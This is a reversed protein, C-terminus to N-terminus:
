KGPAPPAAAAAKAQDLLGLRVWDEAKPAKTLRGVGYKQMLETTLAVHEVTIDTTYPANDIADKFEQSTLQGKFIQERVHQEALAPDATFARTAEVFLRLVRAAVDPREDHMKSTMVLTRVPEGLPTDYPKLIEVAFGGHIAQTAYPESNCAADIQKAILAQNLEAYGLYMIQVDKDPKDSWTLNHGALEALLMLEQIGGRTVGVKKGKLQDITTIKSDTGAVIRVGGKAFGAVVYIPAGGARGAIAADAASAAIDIEGAIIAPMIDIGKAFVREDIKLDYKPALVKMYWIAGYHAFKMNGLRVVDPQKATPANSSSCAAIALLLALWGILTIRHRSPRTRHTM